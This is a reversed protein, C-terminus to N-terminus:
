LREYKQNAINHILVESVTQGALMNHFKTMTLRSSTIDPYGDHNIDKVKNGLAICGNLQMWYNAAHFKCESRGPVDYLEWLEKRFRPSWELKLPYKGPPVCSVNNQNDRWGRELSFGVPEIKLNPHVIYCHGLSYNHTIEYRNIIVTKM